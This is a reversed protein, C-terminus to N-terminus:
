LVQTAEMQASNNPIKDKEKRVRKLHLPGSHSTPFHSPPRGTQEDATDDYRGAAAAVLARRRLPRAQSSEEDDDYVAFQDRTARIWSSM